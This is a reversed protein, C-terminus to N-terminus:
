ERPRSLHEEALRLVQKANAYTLKALAAEYELFQWGVHEDSIRIQTQSSEGLYFIVIKSVLSKERRFFYHIEHAFNPLIQANDIGTEERLERIAAQLDSEGKKVHGKPFDWHRGYDLLLYKRPSEPLFLAVGASRENRAM